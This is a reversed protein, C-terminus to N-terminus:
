DKARWPTGSGKVIREYQVYRCRYCLVIVANLPCELGGHGQNADFFFLMKRYVRSCAKRTKYYRCKSEEVSVLRTDGARDGSRVVRGHIGISNVMNGVHYREENELRLEIVVFEGREAGQNTIWGQYEVM